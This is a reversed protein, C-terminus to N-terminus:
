CVKEPNSITGPVYLSSTLPVLLVDNEKTKSMNEVNLKSSLFKNKASYLIELQKNLEQIEEEHQTKLQNLQELSLQMVDIERANPVLNSDSSMIHINKNSIFSLIISTNM